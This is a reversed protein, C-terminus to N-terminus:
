NINQDSAISEALDKRRARELAEKLMERREENSSAGMGERWQFLMNRIQGLADSPFNLKFHDIQPREVGLYAAVEEWEFGIKRSLDCVLADPPYVAIRTSPFVKNENNRLWKRYPATENVVPCGPPCVDEKELIVTKLTDKKNVLEKLKVLGHRFRFAISYKLYPFYANILRYLEHTIYSLVNFANDDELPNVDKKLSGVMLRFTGNGENWLELITHISDDVKFCAFNCFPNQDHSSWKRYCCVVLRHFLGPPCFGGDFMLYLPPIKQMKLHDESQCQPKGLYVESESHNKLLCPVLYKKWQSDAGEEQLEVLLDFRQCIRLLIAKNEKLEAQEEWVIDILRDDLEGRDDLLDWYVGVEPKSGKHYKEVTILSAFADILWQPDLIIINRTDDENFFVLEGLDSYFKLFHIVMEDNVLGYQKGIELVEELSLCKRTESIEELRKELLVYKLPQEEGWYPQEKITKCIEQRLEQIGADQPDCNNVAYLYPQVHMDHAPRRRLYEQIESFREEVAKKRETSPIIDVKIDKVTGGRKVHVPANLGKTLDFVLLYVARWTLFTQHTTYFVYQGGFDWLTVSEHFQPLGDSKELIQRVTEDDEKVEILAPASRSKSSNESGKYKKVGSALTDSYYNKTFFEDQRKFTTGAKHKELVCGSVAIGNTVLDGETFEEGLLNRCLHTKGIGGQGVVIVNAKYVKQM